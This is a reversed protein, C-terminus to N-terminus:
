RGRVAKIFEDASKFGLKRMRKAGSGSWKRVAANFREEDFKPEVIVVGDKLKVEVETNPTFGCKERISKPITVQGRETMKM